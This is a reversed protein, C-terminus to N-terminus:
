LSVQISAIASQLAGGLREPSLLHTWALLLAATADGTGTFHAASM